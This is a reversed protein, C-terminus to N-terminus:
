DGGRKRLSPTPPLTLKSRWRQGRSLPSIVSSGRGVRLFLPNHKKGRDGECLPISAM